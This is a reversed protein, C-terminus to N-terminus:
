VQPRGRRRYQRIAVIPFGILAIAIYTLIIWAPSDHKWISWTILIVTMGIATVWQFTMSRKPAVVGCLVIMVTFWLFFM